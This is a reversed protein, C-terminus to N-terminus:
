SVTEPYQQKDYKTFEIKKVKTDDTVLYAIFNGTPSWFINNTSSVM